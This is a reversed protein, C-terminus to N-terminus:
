DRFSWSTPDRLISEVQEKHQEFFAIRSNLEIAMLQAKEAWTAHEGAKREVIAALQPFDRKAELYVRKFKNM